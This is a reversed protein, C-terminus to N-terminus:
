QCPGWAALLTLLDLPIRVMKPPKGLRSSRRYDITSEAGGQRQGPGPLVSALPNSGAAGGEGESDEESEPAGIGDLSIQVDAPYSSQDRPEDGSAMASVECPLLATFLFIAARKMNTM